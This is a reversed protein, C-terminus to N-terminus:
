EYGKPSWCQSFRTLYTLVALRREKPSPQKKAPVEIVCVDDPSGLDEWDSLASPRDDYFGLCEGHDDVLAFRAKSSKM